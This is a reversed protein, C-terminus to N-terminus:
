DVKFDHAPIAQNKAFHSLDITTVDGSRETLVVRKVVALKPDITLSIRAFLAKMEGRQPTLQAIWAGDQSFLQTRFSPDTLCQGTVNSVMLRAIQQFVKNQRVDVVNKGREGGLLVKNGSLVFVYKTPTAYEWRLNTPQAYSMRGRSVLRHNLMKLTKTQVFQAQLSKTQQAAASIKSLVQQTEQQSLLKQAAIPLLTALGLLFLIIKQM